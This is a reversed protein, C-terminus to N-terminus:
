KNRERIIKRALAITYDSYREYLEQKLLKKDIPNCAIIRLLEICDDLEVHQKPYIKLLEDKSVYKIKM